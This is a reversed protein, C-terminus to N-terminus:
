PALGLRFTALLDDGTAAAAIQKKLKAYRADPVQGLFKVAAAWVMGAPVLCILDPEDDDV